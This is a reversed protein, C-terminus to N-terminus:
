FKLTNRCLIEFYRLFKLFNLTTRYLIKFYKMIKLTIRSNLSKGYVIATM